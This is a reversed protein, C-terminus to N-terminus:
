APAGEYWRMAPRLLRVADFDERVDITTSAPARRPEGPSSGSHPPQLAASEIPWPLPDGADRAFWTRQAERVAPHASEDAGGRGRLERDALAEAM